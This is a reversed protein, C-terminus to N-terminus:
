VMIAAKLYEHIETMRKSGAEYDVLRNILYFMYMSTLWNTFEQRSGLHKKMNIMIWSFHEWADFCSDCSRSVGTCCRRTSQFDANYARFHPNYPNGNQLRHRNVPNDVSLNTCVEYGWRQNYLKGTTIVKNFYATTLIKDPYKEIMRDIEKRVKEFGKRYDLAGGRNGIDSYYNFLVKNGNEVCQDVVDEIEGAHGPAVTYYWFARADDKYNKLAISFFDKRGNGRLASDTRHNGWVAIGIPMNEFGELPIPILGNTAVTMKFNQYIKKLRHLVLTPEGGVVTVFNTGRHNASDICADLAQEDADAQYRDMGEEFYYCGTCRLNCTSTIDLSVSRVPGANRIDEYLKKLFPDELYQRIASM